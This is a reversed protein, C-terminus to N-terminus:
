GFGAVTDSDGGCENSEGRGCVLVGGNDIKRGILERSEAHGRDTMSLDFHGCLEGDDIGGSVGCGFLLSLDDLAFGVAVEHNNIGPSRIMWDMVHKVVGATHPHNATTVQRQSSGDGCRISRVLDDHDALRLSCEVLVVDFLGDTNPDGRDNVEVGTDSPSDVGSEERSAEGAM